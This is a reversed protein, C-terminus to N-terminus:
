YQCNSRQLRTFIISLKQKKKELNRRKAPTSNQVENETLVSVHCSIQVSFKRLIKAKKLNNHFIGNPRLNNQKDRGPRDNSVDVDKPQIIRSGNIVSKPAPVLIKMSKDQLYSYIMFSFTERFILFQHM